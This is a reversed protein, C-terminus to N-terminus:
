IVARKVATTRDTEQNNLEMEIMKMLVTYRVIRTM